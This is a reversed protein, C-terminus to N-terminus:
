AAAKAPVINPSNPVWLANIERIIYETSNPVTMGETAAKMLSYRSTDAALNRITPVIDISRKLLM